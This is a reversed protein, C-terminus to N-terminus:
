KPGVIEWATDIVSPIYVGGNLTVGNMFWVANQGSTKHRWLIDTKGDGNFDCRPNPSLKLVLIDPGATYAHLPSQGAPGPEM